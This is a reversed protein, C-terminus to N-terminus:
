QITVLMNSELLAKIILSLITAYKEWEESNNLGVEIMCAPANIGCLNKLPLGVPTPILIQASLNTKKLTHLQHHLFNVSRTTLNFFRRHIDQFPVFSLTTRLPIADAFPNRCYHYLSVYEQSTATKCCHLHIFFNVGLQNVYSVRSHLKNQYGIKKPVIVQWQPVTEELSAAISKAIQWTITREFKDDITRAGSCSDTTPEIFLIPFSTDLSQAYNVLSLIVFITVNVLYKLSM